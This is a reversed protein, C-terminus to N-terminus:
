HTLAPTKVERRSEAPALPAPGMPPEPNGALRHAGIKEKEKDAFGKVGGYGDFDNGTGTKINPYEVTSLKLEIGLEIIAYFWFADDLKFHTLNSTEGPDSGLEFMMPLQPVVYPQNIGDSYMHMLKVNKYKASLLEGNGGFFLYSERGSEQGPSCPDTKLRRAAESSHLLRRRCAGGRRQERLRHM